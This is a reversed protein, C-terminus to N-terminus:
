KAYNHLVTYLCRDSYGEGAAVSSARLYHSMVVLGRVNVSNEGIAFLIDVRQALVKSFLIVTWLVCVCTLFKKRFFVPFTLVGRFTPM